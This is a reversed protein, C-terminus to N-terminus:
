TTYSLAAYYAKGYSAVLDAREISNIIRRANRWDAKQPNFYQGLKHGTFAGKIMGEVMVATAVDLNMAHDPHTLIDVNLEKSMREYNAKHTLQVFGRGLWSRGEKDRQWYPKSVWPLRGKRWASDLARIAQDDTSAFTERVPQITRGTEHHATALMYALWRDDSAAHSKEWVNLIGDLGAVQSPSIRGDFLHLRAYDFFFGRNIPM